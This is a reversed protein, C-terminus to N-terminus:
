ESRHLLFNFVSDPNLSISDINHEILFQAFEPYDSPGQGCIGIPRKAKHAGDIADIIMKKVAPDREDFLDSLLVSDRDVGLVLQTLDNSGISFADFFKAFQDILIVNSPVEVMMVLELPKTGKTHKHRALGNKALLDSTARAEQLTRVFPVMIKINDFGMVERAYKLAKCELAFAEKYRDHPYRAAGRFGLMPNSEETEFYEGGLLDRYENSKFDSLRVTVPRPYFGAAIMSIGQALKDVFFEKKDAYGETLKEIQARVKADTVKKPDVLAMPHIKISNAIMFEIRALGVGDVPLMGVAFAADPSAVNVMVKTKLKPIKKLAVEKKEFPLAGAYVFGESGQSCDITIQQGNKIKKTAVNTGVIAPLNLERAVIAAHCTRGGLDTIIGAAQKMVPVWDPDTMSTVIIDGKKIQKIHSANKVVRAAGSVIQQGIAIGSIISKLKGTTGELAEPRVSSFNKKDRREGQSERLTRHSVLKYTVVRQQKNKQSHVTEPRAQVIYIKGDNGDKAWEIDMPTWHGNKHSYFQDITDVMKALSIVQQDNLSFKLRDKAPVTVKKISNKGASYVIKIKKDGLTKKIIPEYGARMTPKFLFFEDPNVIGQVISEGLGWASTIMILNENGTETDLSFAVGSSAKDSRIMKQVGTSLAVGFDDFAHQHRYVIARDTFLSAISKKYAELLAREGKINLFTEQQGAFSAEPSDEATASSRVAVDCASQQYQKSLKRYAGIIQASLDDPIQGSLLLARMQAGTKQLQAMDDYDKLGHMIKKMRVMFENQEIFYWYADATIAFGNPINIHKKSLERIMIGLSGNKGGVRAYDDPTIQDFWCIYKM